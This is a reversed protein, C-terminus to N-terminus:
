AGSTEHRQGQKREVGGQKGAAAEVQLQEFGAVQVHEAAAELLAAAKAHHGDEFAALGTGRRIAQAGVAALRQDAVPLLLAIAQQTDADFASPAKAQQALFLLGVMQHHPLHLPKRLGLGLRQAIAVGIQHRQQHGQGLVGHDGAQVHPAFDGVALGQTALQGIQQRELRVELEFPQAQAVLTLAQGVDLAM